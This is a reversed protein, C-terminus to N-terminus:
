SQDGVRMADLDAIQFGLVAKIGAELTWLNEKTAIQNLDSLLDSGLYINNDKGGVMPNAILRRSDGLWTAPKVMAKRNTKPLPIMGNSLQSSVDHMVYKYNTEMDDLLYEYDTYSAHIIVGANKIPTPMARYLELMANVAEKGSTNDIVGTSVPAVNAGTIEEAIITGIGKVVAEATVNQWLAPHTDPSQGATTDGAGIKKFYELRGSQTFTIYDGPSYTDGGVFAVADAKDFGFYATRNNVENQVREIVKQWVFQAFPIEKKNANSGPQMMESFYTPRFDEPDILLERKGTETKLERDSFVLDKKTGFETTGSYPRFGENVLLKPLKVYNKVGPYVMISNVIDLGNIMTSILQRRFNTAYRSIATIDVNDNLTFAPIQAYNILLTSIGVATGTIWLQVGTAITLALAFLFLNAIAFFKKM